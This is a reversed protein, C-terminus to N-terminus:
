SASKLGSEWIEKIERYLNLPEVAKVSGGFSAIMRALEKSHACSFTIEFRNDNTKAVKQSPHIAKETFYTAMRQDCTIKFDVLEESLGGWGGILSDFHVKDEFAVPDFSDESLRVDKIRTARLKKFTKDEQDQAILYPISSSLIFVYPAFRRERGNYAKDKYPSENKCIIVKNERIAQMIKEFDQIDSDAPRGGSSYAFHYRKKSERLRRALNEDLCDLIATEAETTVNRFYEHSTFKLDNLAIMLAQLTNENLHLEHTFAFDDPAFFREPREGETSCIGHSRSLDELDRRITRLNVKVGESELRKKITQPCLGAEENLGKLLRFVLEQRRSKSITGM